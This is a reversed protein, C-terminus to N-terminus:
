PDATQRCFLLDKAESLIVNIGEGAAEWTWGGVGGGCRWRRFRETVPDPSTRGANPAIAGRDRRARWRRSWERRDRDRGGYARDGGAATEGHRRGGRVRVDRAPGHGGGAGARSARKARHVAAVDDGRVSRGM